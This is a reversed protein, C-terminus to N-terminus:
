KSSEEYVIRIDPRSESYLYKGNRYYRIRIQLLYIGYDTFSLKLIKKQSESPLISEVSKTKEYGVAQIEEVDISNDFPYAQREQIMPDILCYFTEFQEMNDIKGSESIQAQKNSVLTYDLKKVEIKGLTIKYTSTNKLILSLDISGPIKENGECYLYRKNDDIGSKGTNAPGAKENNIDEVSIQLKRSETGKEIVFENLYVEPAANTHSNIFDDIINGLFIGVISGIALGLIKILLILRKSNGTIKPILILKKTCDNNKSTSTKRGTETNKEKNSNSTKDVQNANSKKEKCGQQQRSKQQTPKGLITEAENETNKQELCSPSSNIDENNKHNMEKKM